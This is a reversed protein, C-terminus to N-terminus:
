CIYSVEDHNFQSLRNWGPRLNSLPRSLSVARIVQTSVTSAISDADQIERIFDKACLSNRKLFLPIWM